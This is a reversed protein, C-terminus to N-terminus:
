KKFGLLNVKYNILTKNELFDLIIENNNKIEFCLDKLNKKDDNKKKNLSNINKQLINQNKILESMKTIERIINNLYYLEKKLNSEIQKLNTPNEIKNEFNIPGNNKFKDFFGESVKKGLKKILLYSGSLFSKKQNKNIFEEEFFHSFNKDKRIFSYQIIKNFFLEIFKSSNKGFKPFNPFFHCYYIEKVGNFFEAIEYYSIVM